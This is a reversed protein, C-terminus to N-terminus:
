PLIEEGTSVIFRLDPERHRTLPTPVCIIIVDMDHLQDFDASASFAGSKRLSAIRKAPIHKIYSRGSNLATVKAADIDFGVTPFGKEAFLCALPLGVYGLGIIGISARRTAIRRHVASGDTENRKTKQTSSKM